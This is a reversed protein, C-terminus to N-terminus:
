YFTEMEGWTYPQFAVEWYLVSIHSLKTQCLFQLTYRVPYLFIPFNVVFLLCSSLTQYGHYSNCAM